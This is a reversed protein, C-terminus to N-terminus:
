LGCLRQGLEDAGSSYLFAARSWMPTFPHPKRGIFSNIFWAPPHSKAQPAKMQPGQEVTFCRSLVKAWKKIPESTEKKTIQAPERYTSSGLRTNNIM